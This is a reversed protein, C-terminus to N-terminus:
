VLEKENDNHTAEKLMPLEIRFTTGVGQASEVTISGNMKQIQNYAIYMGLGTGEGTQKTTFFPNFVRDLEQQTMGVGTDHCTLILRNDQTWGTLTLRGGDPMADVANSILNILISKLGDEMIAWNLNPDIDIRYIVDRKEMVKHNLEIMDKLYAFMNVNTVRNDAIRSFNLLNDIIQSAQEVALEIKEFSKMQVEESLTETKKLFYTYNRILGLPNRIEHAVGAALQGIAAMKSAQLVQQEALRLETVNQIMVLLRNSTSEGEILPFTSVMYTQSNHEIEIESKTRTELSKAVVDMIMPVHPLGKMYNFNSGLATEKDIKLNDCFAKNVTIINMQSDLVVMLHTLSDFTTQLDNRSIKLEDTRTEVEEKLESNWTFFLYSALIINLMFFSVILLLKEDSNETIIPESIGFWKQQIKQMTKKRKLAYIGKNIIGQLMKDDKPMSFVSHLQYLPTEVIRYKDTLGLEELYYSLVPEDGVVADVNGTELQTLLDSYDPVHYFNIGDVNNNLFENVYDGRQAAVRKGILDFMNEINDETKPIVIITRQFNIPDSFLYVKSRQESPFMDCLDTKGEELESLAKSWVMPELIIETELEISLAQLYDVTVGRYQNTVPDVYRMPPTSSDSGYILPGHNDLWAREDPTLQTSKTIYEFIGFNYEVQMYKDVFITTVVIFILITIIIRRKLLLGETPCDYHEM